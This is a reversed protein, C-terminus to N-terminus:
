GRCRETGEQLRAAELRVRLAGSVRAGGRLVGCHRRHEGPSAAARKRHRHETPHTPHAVLRALARRVLTRQQTRLEVPRLPAALLRHLRRCLRLSARRLQELLHSLEFLAERLLPSARLLRLM